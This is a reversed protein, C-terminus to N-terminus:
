WFTNCHQKTQQFLLPSVELIDQVDKLVSADEEALSEVIAAADQEATQVIAGERKESFAILASGRRRIGVDLKVHSKQSENLGRLSRPSNRCCLLNVEANVHGALAGFGRRTSIM